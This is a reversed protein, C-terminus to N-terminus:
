QPQTSAGSAPTAPEPAAATEVDKKMQDVVSQGFALLFKVDTLPSSNRALPKLAKLMADYQRGDINVASVPFAEEPKQGLRTALGPVASPATAEEFLRIAAEDKVSRWDRRQNAARVVTLQQETRLVAIARHRANIERNQRDAFSAMEKKLDQTLRMTAVATPRVADTACATLSLCLPLVIIRM